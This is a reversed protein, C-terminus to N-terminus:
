SPSPSAGAGFDFEMSQVITMADAVFADFEAAHLSQILLPLVNSGDPFDLVMLRLRIDKFDKDQPDEPDLPCTGAWSPSLHVDLQQGPVGGITVQVPATTVLNKSAKLARTIEAATLRAGQAYTGPCIGWDDAWGDTASIVITQDADGSRAFEEQNSPTNPFLDYGFDFDNGNIWGVPVTYTISPLFFRSAHRGASLEGACNPDCTTGRQTYWDPFVAAASASPTASPTVSPATSPSPSPSGSGGSGTSRGPMLNWGIVAIVLVAAIAAGYKVLPHMDTERWRFRWAPRQRERAIRDAVVDVVRDPM